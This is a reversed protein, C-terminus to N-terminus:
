QDASVPPLHSPSPEGRDPGAEIVLQTEDLVETTFELLARDIEQMWDDVEVVFETRGLAAAIGLLLDKAIRHADPDDRLIAGGAFRLEGGHPLVLAIGTVTDGRRAVAIKQTEALVDRWVDADVDAPPDRTHGNLYFDRWARVATDDFTSSVVVETSPAEGAIGTVRIMRNRQNSTM